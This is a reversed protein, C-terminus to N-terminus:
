CALRMAIHRRRMRADPGKKHKSSTGSVRCRSPCLHAPQLRGSAASRKALPRDNDTVACASQRRDPISAPPHPGTSRRGVRGRMRPGQCRPGARRAPHRKPDPRRVRQGPPAASARCHTRLHRSPSVEPVAGKGGKRCDQWAPWGLQRGAQCPSMHKAPHLIM